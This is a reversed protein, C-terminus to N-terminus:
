QRTFLFILCTHCALSMYVCTGNEFPTLNPWNSPLQFHICVCINKCLIINDDINYCIIMDMLIHRLVSTSYCSIVSSCKWSLTRNSASKRNYYASYMLWCIHLFSELKGRNIQETVSVNKWRHCAHCASGVSDHMPISFNSCVSKWVSIM